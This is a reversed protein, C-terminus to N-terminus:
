VSSLLLYLSAVTSLVTLYPTFKHVVTVSLPMPKETSLLGGTAVDVVFFLVAIGVTIIEIPDLPTVQHIRFVTMILYIGAALGTLKHITLIIVRYPKGLLRLWIGSLFIFLFFLGTIVVRSLNPDMDIGKKTVSESFSNSLLLVVSGVIKGSELLRNSQTAELIPYKKAIIPKIKSVGLL